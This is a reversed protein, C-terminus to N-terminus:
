IALWREGKREVALRHLGQRDQLRRVQVASLVQPVALQPRQAAGRLWTRGRLSLDRHQDRPGGPQLDNLRLHGEAQVGQRAAPGKPHVQRLVQRSSSYASRFPFPFWM